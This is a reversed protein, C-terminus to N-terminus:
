NINTVLTDKKLKESENKKGETKVAEKMNTIDVLIFAYPFDELSFSPSLGFFLFNNKNNAKESVM